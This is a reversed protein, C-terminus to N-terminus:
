ISDASTRTPKVDAKNLRDEFYTLDPYKDRMKKSPQMSLQKREIIRKTVAEEKWRWGAPKAYRARDEKSKGVKGGKAYSLYKKSPKADAKNLREETYVLKPYKEAFEKSPKKYLDEKTIKRGRDMKGVAFNKYRLGVPKAERAGDEASFGVKKKRKYVTVEGGKAFETLIHKYKSSANEGYHENFAAETSPSLKDETVYHSGDGSIYYDGNSLDSMCFFPQGNYMVYDGMKYKGKLEGGDALKVRRTPNFDARNPRGEYDVKGTKLGRRIQKETPVRYDNKGTFRYGFPKARRKADRELDTPKGTAKYGSGYKAKLKKSKEIMEELDSMIKGLKKKREVKQTEIKKEVEKVKKDAKKKEAPAAKTAAKIVKKKEEEGKKEEKIDAKVEKVSAKLEDLKKQFKAKVDPNSQSAIAKELKAIDEQAKGLKKEDVATSKNDTSSEKEAAALDSELGKLKAEFKAKVDPNSQSAIATKLKAIDSKTKQIDM